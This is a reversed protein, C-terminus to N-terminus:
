HCPCAAHRAQRLEGDELLNAANGQAADTVPREERSPKEPGSKRAKLAGRSRRSASAVISKSRQLERARQKGTQAMPPNADSAAGAVQGEVARAKSRSPAKAQVVRRAPSAAPLVAVKRMHGPGQRGDADGGLGGGGDEENHPFRLHTGKGKPRSALFREHAGHM